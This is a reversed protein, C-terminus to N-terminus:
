YHVNKPVIGFIRRHDKDFYYEGETSYYQKYIEYPFETNKSTKISIEDEWGKANLWTTPYPIYQGDNKKWQETQKLQKIKTIMKNVLEESPKNKTFWKEADGKSKRKPYENWFKNFLEVNLTKSIINQTLQAYNNNDINNNINNNSSQEIDCMFKTGTNDSSQEINSIKTYYKCRKVKDVYEEKVILKKEELVKLNKQVGRITSNTWDALYQLSGIFSNIEDQSFGYIIAYVLLENGKLNLDSIMWGHIVIHNARKVYNAM